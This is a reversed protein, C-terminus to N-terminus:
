NTETDSTVAESQIGRFFTEMDLFDGAAAMGEAELMDKLDIRTKRREIDNVSNMPLQQGKTAVAEMPPTKYVIESLLTTLPTDMYEGAVYRLIHLDEVSIADDLPRGKLARLQRNSYGQSLVERSEAFGSDILEERVRFFATDWPGHHHWVYVLTTLPGGLVKRAELDALYLLKVLRTHGIWKESEELFYMLVQANKSIKGM